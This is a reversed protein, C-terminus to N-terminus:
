IDVPALELYGVNEAQVDSVFACCWQKMRESSSSCPGLFLKLTSGELERPNREVGSKTTIGVRLVFPTTRSM